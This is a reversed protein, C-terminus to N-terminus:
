QYLDADALAARAAEARTGHGAGLPAFPKGNVGAYWRGLRDDTTGRYSGERVYLNTDKGSVRITGDTRLTIKTAM